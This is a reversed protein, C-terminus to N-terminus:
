EESKKQLAALKELTELLNQLEHIFAKIFLTQVMQLPVGRLEDFCAQLFYAWDGNNLRTGCYFYFELLFMKHESTTCSDGCSHDEPLYCLGLLLLLLSALTLPCKAINRGVIGYTSLTVSVMFKNKIRFYKISTQWLKEALVNYELTYNVIMTATWERIKQNTKYSDDTKWFQLHVVHKKAHLCM